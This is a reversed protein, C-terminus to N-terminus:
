TKRYVVLIIVKLAVERGTLVRWAVDGCSFFDPAGGFQANVQSSPRFRSPISKRHGRGAACLPLETHGPHPDFGCSAYADPSKLDGAYAM